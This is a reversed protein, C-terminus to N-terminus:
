ASAGCQSSSSARSLASNHSSGQIGEKARKKYRQGEDVIGTVESTGVRGGDGSGAREGEGGTAGTRVWGDLVEGEGSEAFLPGAVEVL